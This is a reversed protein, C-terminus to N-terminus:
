GWATRLGTMGAFAPIWLHFISLPSLFGLNGWETLSIDSAQGSGRVLWDLLSCLGCRPYQVERVLPSGTYM